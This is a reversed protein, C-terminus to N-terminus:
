TGSRAGQPALPNVAKRAAEARQTTFKDLLSGSGSGAGNGAGNDPFTVFTNAQGNGAGNGNASSAPAAKLAAVLAPDKWDRAAKAELSEWTANQEGAKRVYAVERAKQDAGTETRVELELGEERLQSELVRPNWKLSTAAKTRSEKRKTEAVESELRTGAELKAKVDAPKGLAEYARYDALAQGHLVISGQPNRTEFAEITKRQERAKRRINHNENFLFRAAAIAKDAQTAGPQRVILSDFEAEVNAPLRTGGGAPAPAPRPGPSPDGAGAGGTGPQTNPDLARRVRAFIPM